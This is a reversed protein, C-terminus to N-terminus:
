SARIPALLGGRLIFDPGGTNGLDETKVSDIDKQDIFPQPSSGGGPRDKGFRLSKLDTKLNILPM